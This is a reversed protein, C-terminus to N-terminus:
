VGWALRLWLNMKFSRKRYAPHASGLGEQAIGHCTFM